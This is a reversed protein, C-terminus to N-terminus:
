QDVKKITDALLSAENKAVELLGGTIQYFTKQNNEDKLTVTGKNLTTIIPAHNALIELYGAGGPAILSIVTGDFIVEEPTTIILHYTHM